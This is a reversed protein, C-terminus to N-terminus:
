YFEHILFLNLEIFDPNKIATFSFCFRCVLPQRCRAFLYVYCRIMKKQNSLILQNSKSGGGRVFRLPRTNSDRYRGHNKGRSATRLRPRKQQKTDTRGDTQGDTQWTPTNYGCPQLYRWVEKRGSLGMMRTKQGRAGISSELAFGKLPLACYVPSNTIKSQFRRKDRFRYPLASSRPVDLLRTSSNDLHRSTSLHGNVVRLQKSIDGIGWYADAAPGLM